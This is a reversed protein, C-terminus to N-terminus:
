CLKVSEIGQGQEFISSVLSNLELLVTSDDKM